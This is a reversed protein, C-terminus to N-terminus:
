VTYVADWTQREEKLQRINSTASPFNGFPGLLDCGDRLRLLLFIRRHLEM